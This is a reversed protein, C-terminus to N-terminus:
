NDKCFPLVLSDVIKPPIVFVRSILNLCYYVTGFTQTLLVSCAALSASQMEFQRLLCGRFGDPFLHLVGKHLKVLEGQTIRFSLYVVYTRRIRRASRIYFSPSLAFLGPIGSLSDTQTSAIELVFLDLALLVDECDPMSFM